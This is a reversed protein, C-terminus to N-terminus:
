YYKLQYEESSFVAEVCNFCVPTPVVFKIDKPCDEIKDLIKLLNYQKYFRKLGEHEGLHRIYIDLAAVLPSVLKNDIIVRLDKEATKPGYGPKINPIGDIADGSLISRAFAFDASEKSVEIFHVRGKRADFHRGPICDLIDKDAGIIFSNSLTNKAINVLDDAELNASCIADWKEVLHDWVERFWMPKEVGVRNAKYSSDVEVRFSRGATLFLLYSDSRTLNLVDTIYSDCIELAEKLSRDSYIYRGKDDKLINGRNDRVKNKNCAIWIIYDADILATNLYHINTTEM